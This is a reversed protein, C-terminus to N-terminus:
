SKSPLHLLQLLNATCIYILQWEEVGKDQMRWVILLGFSTSYTPYVVDVGGRGAEFMNVRWVVGGIHRTCVSASCAFELLSLSATHM